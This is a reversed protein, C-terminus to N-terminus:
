LYKANFVPCGAEWREVCAKQNDSKIELPVGDHYIFAGILARFLTQQKKDDVVEIYQRRSYCLIYSFFTVQTAVGPNQSTFRINYDSWDHAARQGPDTEVMQVPTRSGVGRISTLYDRVITIKGDYGKEKLHEHVRQGTINSYKDLLEAILGKYPDLKSHRKKKLTIEDGPTTDRLESNSVLWRRVRGRSIGLEKSIKRIPWGKAHLTIVSNELSEDKM